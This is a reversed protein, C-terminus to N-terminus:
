GPSRLHPTGLYFLDREKLLLPQLLDTELVVYTTESAGATWILPLSQKKLKWLIELDHGLFALLFVDFTWEFISFSLFEPEQVLDDAKYLNQVELMLSLSIM